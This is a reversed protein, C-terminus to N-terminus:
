RRDHRDIGDRDDRGWIIAYLLLAIAFCLIDILISSVLADM